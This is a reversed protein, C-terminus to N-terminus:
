NDSLYMIRLKIDELELSKNFIESKYAEILENNTISLLDEGLGELDGKVEKKREIYDM